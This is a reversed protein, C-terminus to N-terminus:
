AAPRLLSEPEADVGVYFTFRPIYVVGRIPVGPAETDAALEAADEPSTLCAAAPRGFKRAYRELADALKFRAPTKKDPDYWGLFM